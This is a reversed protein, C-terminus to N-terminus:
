NKNKLAELRSKVLGDKDNLKQAVEFAQRAHEWGEAKYFAEGKDKYVEFQRKIDKKVNEIKTQAKDNKYNLQLAAKYKELAEPYWAAGRQYLTDGVTIFEDFQNFLQEQKTAYNITDELNFNGFWALKNAKNYFEIAKSFNEEQRYNDGTAKHNLCTLHMGTAAAILVGLMFFAAVFAFRTARKRGKEAALANQEAKKREAKAEQAHQKAKLREQEAQARLAKEKALEREAKTRELAEQEKIKIRSEKIFDQIHPELDIKDFYDEMSNLQKSSLYEGTRDKEIHAFSLRKLVENLQREEATRQKDILLALSDHALEIVQEDLRLLRAKELTEIIPILSSQHKIKKFAFLANPAIQIQEGQRQYHIPRKTAEETVFADLVKRVGDQPFDPFAQEMDAQLSQQQQNLFKELVDEIKGFDQIEKQSFELPPLSKATWGNPYTRAFDEQWLMDLYVQLYPLQIATNAKSINKIMQELRDDKPPELGIQFANFSQLMVAKVKKNTMQEVRLRYDFLVPISKEMNYLRGIYEERMVFIVKCPIGSDLLSAISKTFIQQEKPTGMIFLEEFQDFILYAPRLYHRFVWAITTNLDERWQGRAAKTLESQLSANIDDNRRIFFPYWDPGDFRGALGCQILSTKGTGSLGYVLCLPTEFVMEYLTDIEKDRGFFDAKDQLTYADLFKFPSKM